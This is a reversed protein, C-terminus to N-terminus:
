VFRLNKPQFPGAKLLLESQIIPVIEAVIIPQLIMMTKVLRNNGLILNKGDWKTPLSKSRAL